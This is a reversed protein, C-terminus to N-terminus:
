TCIEIKMLYSTSRELNRWIGPKRMTPTIAAMASKGVLVLGSSETVRLRFLVVVYSGRIVTSARPLYILIERQRKRSDTESLDDM